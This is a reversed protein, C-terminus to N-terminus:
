DFTLVTYGKAAYETVVTLMSLAIRVQPNVHQRAYDRAVLSQGCVFFEVGAKHLSDILALNPNDIGYKRRYGAHTLVIPTATYHVAVAIKVQGAPVGGVAYLNVLRAVSNLGRNVKEPPNNSSKLDIVVKYTLTTDPLYVEELDYVTGQPAIRPNVPTQAQLSRICALMCLTFLLKKMALSLQDVNM